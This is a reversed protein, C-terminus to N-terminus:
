SIPGHLPKNLEHPALKYLTQLVFPTPLYIVYAYFGIVFRIFRNHVTICFVVQHNM